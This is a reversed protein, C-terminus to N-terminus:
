PKLLKSADTIAQELGEDSTRVSLDPRSRLKELFGWDADETGIVLIETGKDKLLRGNSLAAIVNDPKGDTVVVVTEVFPYKGDLLVALADALNTSGGRLPHYEISTIASRLAKKDYSATHYLQATSSFLIIGVMKTPLARQTFGQVGALAVQLKTKFKSSISGDVVCVSGGDPSPKIKGTLQALDAKPGVFYNMSDSLDILLYVLGKRRLEIQRNGITPKGNVLRVIDNPM